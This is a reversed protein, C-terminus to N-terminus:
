FCLLIAFQLLQLQHFTSTPSIEQLNCVPRWLEPQHLTKDSFSVDILCYLIGALTTGTTLLLPEVHKGSVDQFRFEALNNRRCPYTFIGGKALIISSTSSACSEFDSGLRKVQGSQELYM